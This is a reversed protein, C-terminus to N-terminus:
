IFLISIFTELYFVPIIIYKHGLGHCTQREKEVYKNITIIYVNILFSVCVVNLLM